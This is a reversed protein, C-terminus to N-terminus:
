LNAGKALTLTVNTPTVTQPQKTVPDYISVDRWLLLVYQGNRKQTLVYKGDSPFGNVKIPLSQPTFAPGPDSLLGLLNKM